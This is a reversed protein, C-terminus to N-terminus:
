PAVPFAYAYRGDCLVKITTVRVGGAMGVYDAFTKTYTGSTNLTVNNETLIEETYRVLQELTTGSLFKSGSKKGTHQSSDRISAMSALQSMNAGDCSRSALPSYEWRKDM